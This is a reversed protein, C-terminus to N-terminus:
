PASRWLNHDALLLNRAVFQPPASTAEAARMRPTGPPSWPEPLPPLSSTWKPRPRGADDAVKEAVGALLNDVRADGTRPPPDGISEDVRTPHLGIWDVIGRLRTWDFSDIGREPDAVTALRPGDDPVVTEVVLRRGAASAIRALMTVTPDMEGAEIRAITSRTCGARAALSRQSLGSEARVRVVLDSATEMTPLM